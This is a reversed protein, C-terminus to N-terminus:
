TRYDGRGELSILDFWKGDPTQLRKKGSHCVVKYILKEGGEGISHFEMALSDLPISADLTPSVMALRDGHGFFKVVQKESAPEPVPTPIASTEHKLRLACRFHRSWLWVPGWDEFRAVAVPASNTSRHIFKGPGLAIGVHTITNPGWGENYTDNFFVVDGPQLEGLTTVMAGLDRGALSNALGPGTWLGDVAAKTTVSALPHGAERLVQRVWNMCQARDGYSFHKGAWALAKDTVRNSM